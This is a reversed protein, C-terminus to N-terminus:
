LRPSYTEAQRAPTNLRSSMRRTTARRAWSICSRAGPRISDTSRSSSSSVRTSSPRAVIAATLAGPEQTTAPVGSSTASARRTSSARPAETRSSSVECAKWVASTSGARGPRSSTSRWTVSFAGSIGKRDLTVPVQIVSSCAVSGAYQTAWVRRGTRNESPTAVRAWRPGATNTSAPGPLWSPPSTLVWGSGPGTTVRSRLGRAPASAGASCRATRSPRASSHRWPTVTSQDASCAPASRRRTGSGAYGKRPRLKRSGLGACVVPTRASRERQVYAGTQCRAGSAAPGSCVAGSCVPGAM